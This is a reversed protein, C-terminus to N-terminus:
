CEKYKRGMRWLGLGAYKATKPKSPFLIQILCGLLGINGPCRLHIHDAQRIAKYIQWSVKPVKIVTKFIARLGILSITDIEFFNIKIQSYPIDIATKETQIIPAVIILEGIFEGWINMERVYPAYAFYQNQYQIHPVHTIIAFKM